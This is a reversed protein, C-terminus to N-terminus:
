SENVNSEDLLLFDIAGEVNGKSKILAKLCKEVDTFGMGKLSNLQESYIIHDNAGGNINNNINTDNNKINLIDTSKLTDQIGEQKQEVNKVENEIARPAQNENTNNTRGSPIYGNGTGVNQLVNMFNSFNNNLPTNNFLANNFRNNNSSNSNINNNNNNVIDNNTTNRLFNMAELIFSQDMYYPPISGSASDINNKNNNNNNHANNKSNNTTTNEGVINGYPTNYNGLNTLSNIMNITSMLDSSTNNTPSTSNMNLNKNMSMFFNNLMNSSNEITEDLKNDKNNNTLRNTSLTDNQNKNTHALNHVHQTSNKYEDTLNNQYDNNGNIVNKNNSVNKNTQPLQLKNLLPVLSNSLFSNKMLDNLNNNNMINHTTNNNTSTNNSGRKNKDFFLNNQNNLLSNTHNNNNNDTSVNSKFNQTKDNTQFFKEFNNLNYNNKNNIRNKNKSNKSAWPNPFAESTPPSTSNLDYHKVKNLKKDILKETSEYMPEQINHYMRRLTNFGGPIAEINSIARDTNKMLEKMLSPNKIMEFSQKLTQSDNLIHNLDSNQERLKKLQKNSDMISKIFDSNDFMNSILKSIGDNQGYKGYENYEDNLTSLQSSTIGSDLTVDNGNKKKHVKIAYIIDNFKINYKDIEDVDKLSRGRYIIRYNMDNNNNNNNNLIKNLGKKMKKITINKEIRCKYINNNCDNTKLRVYIYKNDVMNKNKHNLEYGERNKKVCTNDDKNFMNCNNKNNYKENKKNNIVEVNEEKDKDCILSDEKNMNGESIDKFGENNNILGNRGNINNNIIDDNRYKNRDLVKNKKNNSDDEKILEDNTYEEKDNEDYSSSVDEEGEDDSSHSNNIVYTYENLDINNTHVDVKEKENKEMSNAM